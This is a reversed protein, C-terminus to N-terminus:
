IAPIEAKNQNSKLACYYITAIETKIQSREPTSKESHLEDNM